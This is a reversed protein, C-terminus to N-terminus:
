KLNRLLGGLTSFESPDLESFDIQVGCEDELSTIFELFAVSDFVGLEVLNDDEGLDKESLGLPTLKPIIISLLKEKLNTSDSM